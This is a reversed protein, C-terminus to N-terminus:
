LWRIQETPAQDLGRPLRLYGPELARLDDGAAGAGLREAAIRAIAAAAHVPPRAGGLAFATALEAPAAVLDTHAAAPLAQEAVIAPESSGRVLVFADHAGARAIAARADPEAELWAELSRVGVIPVELGFALGKALSMGVRLGTFSGPGIGVAVATATDLPRGHRPSSRWCAPCSSAARVTGM